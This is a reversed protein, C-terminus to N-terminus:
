VAPPLQIGVCAENYILALTGKLEETLYQMEEAVDAAALSYQEYSEQDLFHVQEADSYMLAVERRQFDADDLSDTGKCSLDAKQRTILHRARFKYLTAGGRASPTQVTVSEIVYPADNQKVIAGPKVDKALM